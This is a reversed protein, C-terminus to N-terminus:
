TAVRSGLSTKSLVRSLKRASNFALEPSVEGPVAKLIPCRHIGRQSTTVKPSSSDPIKCAPFHPAVPLAPPTAFRPGCGEPSLRPLPIVALM